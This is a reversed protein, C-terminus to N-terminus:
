RTRGDFQFILRELSDAHREAVRPIGYVNIYVVCYKRFICKTEKKRYTNVM